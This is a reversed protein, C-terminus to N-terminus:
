GWIPKEKNQPEDELFGDLRAATQHAYSTTEESQGDQHDPVSASWHVTVRLNDRRFNVSTSSKKKGNETKEDWITQIEEDAVRDYVGVRSTTMPGYESRGLQLKAMDNAADEKTSLLEASITLHFEYTSGDANKWGCNAEKSTNAYDILDSAGLETRGHMDNRRLYDCLDPMRLYREVAETAKADPEDEQGQDHGLVGTFYGIGAVMGLCLLAIMGLQAGRSGLPGRRAPPTGEPEDTATRTERTVASGPEPTPATAVATRPVTPPQVPETEAESGAADTEGADLNRRLRTLRQHVAAATAPRLAPDRHLLGALLDAVPAPVDPRLETVRRPDEDLKRRIVSLPSGDGFPPQGTLLVFLVSGLAYLDSRADGRQDLFQEPAGYQATGVPSLLTTPAVTFTHTHIFGAIGFDVVKVSGDLTLMVNSPKIDYHVVHAAHAAVLAACVQEAIELARDHPLPSHTRLHEALSTGEVYEMVLFRTDDHTGRDYLTVIHRHNIQAAAVAEREFRNLLEPMANDDPHLLKVAVDRHLETDRAAWVEGMGGRGLREVLAYRGAIVTGSDM